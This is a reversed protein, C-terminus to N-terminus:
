AQVGDLAALQAKAHAIREAEQERTLRARPPPEDRFPGLEDVDVDERPSRGAGSLAPPTDGGLHDVHGSPSGEPDGRHQATSHQATSIRARSAVSTGRESGRQKTQPAVSTGRESGRQRRSPIYTGDELPFRSAGRKVELAVRDPHGQYLYFGIVRGVRRTVGGRGPAGYFEVMGRRALEAFLADVEDVMAGITRGFVRPHGEFLGYDDTQHMVLTFGAITALSADYLREDTYVDNPVTGYNDAM